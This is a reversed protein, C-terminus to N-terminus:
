GQRHWRPKFTFGLLGILGSTFLWLAAPIPVASINSMTATGMYRIGGDLLNSPSGGFNDYYNEHVGQFFSYTQGMGMNLSDVLSQPTIDSETYPADDWFLDIITDRDLDALYRTSSDYYYFGSNNNFSQIVSASNSSQNYSSESFFAGTSGTDPNGHYDLVPMVANIETDFPTPGFAVPELSSYVSTIGLGSMNNVEGPSYNDSDLSLRLTFQQGTFSTDTVWAGGSSTHRSTADVLFDVNVIAAQTNQSLAILLITTVTRWM